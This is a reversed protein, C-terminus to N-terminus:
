QQPDKGTGGCGPCAVPACLGGHLVPAMVNGSGSCEVCRVNPSKPTSSKSSRAAAEKYLYELFLHESM